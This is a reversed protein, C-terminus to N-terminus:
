AALIRHGSGRFGVTRRHGVLRELPTMYLRHSLSYSSEGPSLEPVDQLDEMVAREPVGLLLLTTAATHRADHPRAERAGAKRLLQKWDRMDRRPDIPKGDAQVFMWGSEHWESGAHEREQDQRARHELLLSFLQDPIAIGRRGARSKVDVEVLGGDRRQPCWRAHSM